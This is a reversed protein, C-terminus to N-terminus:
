LALRFSPSFLAKKWFFFFGKGVVESCCGRICLLLLPTRLEDCLSIRRAGVGKERLICLVFLGRGCSFGVFFLLEEELSNASSVVCSVWFFVVWL